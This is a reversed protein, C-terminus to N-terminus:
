LESKLVHSPDAKKLFAFALRDPTVQAGEKM